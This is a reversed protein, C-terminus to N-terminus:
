NKRKPYGCSTTQRVQYNNKAEDVVKLPRFLLNSLVLRLRCPRYRHYTLLFLAGFKMALTKQINWLNLLYTWRWLGGLSFNVHSFYKFYLLPLYKFNVFFKSIYFFLLIFFFYPSFFANKVPLNITFKRM